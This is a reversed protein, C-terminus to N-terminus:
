VRSRDSPRLTEIHRLQRRSSVDLKRLISRVHADVTRPSVFLATGIERSTEGRAVMRAVRLEQVTLTHVGTSSRVTREGAVGLKTAARAQFASVGVNSFTSWAQRLPERAQPRRGTELLWEGWLLRTRAVQLVAGAEALQETARQFLADAASGRDLLAQARLYMGEAWPTGCTEANERLLDCVTRLRATRGCAAAAEALETALLCGYGTETSDPLEGIAALVAEPRGAGNHLVARAHETATLLRGERRESAERTALDVLSATAAEDGRWAAHALEAYRLPPIGLAQTLDNAEAIRKAADDMRGVYMDVMAQQDLSVPLAALDGTSRAGHLQRDVLRRWAQMDWAQVAADSALRAVGPDDLLGTDSDAVCSRVARAMLPAAAGGTTISTILAELLLEAPADAHRDTDPRPRRPVDEQARDRSLYRGTLALAAVADLLIRRGAVPDRDSVVRAADLLSRVAREDRQVVYATRAHLLVARTRESDPLPEHTLSVLIALAEQFAGTKRKARAASLLRSARTRPDATLAAALEWFGGAVGAGTHQTARRAAEELDGAANEDFGSAAQGRHWAHRDPDQLVDCCEALAAHAQRRETVSAASYVMSRLLLHRFSVRTDVDLIGAAEAMAAVDPGIGTAAAAKRVLLANGDPEAAALLLFRRVAPQLQALRNRFYEELRKPGSGSDGTASRSTMETPGIWRPLHLLALPNGRAETLVRERVRQDLPARVRSDLLERADRDSLPSVARAPLDALEAREAIDEVTFVFAVRHPALRRAVFALVALSRHDMWHADDILCIVPRDEASASLLGLVALGLYLHDPAGGSRRGMAVGLAERQPQPLVSFHRMLPGTLRQLGAFPLHTETESNQVRLVQLSKYETQARDLLATKGIGAEGHLVLAGGTGVGAQAVLNRLTAMEGRRGLLGEDVPGQAPRIHLTDVEM